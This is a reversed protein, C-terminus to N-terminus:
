VLDSTPLTLHTYSVASPQIPQHLNAIVVSETDPEGFAKAFSTQLLSGGVQFNIIDSVGVKPPEQFGSNGSIGM